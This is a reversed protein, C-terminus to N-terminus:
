EPPTAHPGRVCAVADNAFRHAQEPLLAVSRGADGVDQLRGVGIRAAEIMEEGALLIQQVGDEVGVFRADPRHQQLGRPHADDVGDIASM